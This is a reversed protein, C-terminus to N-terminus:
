SKSCNVKLTPQQPTDQCLYSHCCQKQLCSQPAMTRISSRNLLDGFYVFPLFKKHSYSRQLIKERTAATQQGYKPGLSLPGLIQRALINILILVFFATWADIYVNELTVWHRGSSFKVDRKKPVSRIM